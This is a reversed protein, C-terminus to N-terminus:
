KLIQKRSCSDLQDCLRKVDQVIGIGDVREQVIKATVIGIVQGVSNILPGGSNGPNITTDTIIFGDRLNTITGITISGDLTTDGAGPSGVAMVWHGVRPESGPQLTAFAPMSKDTILIALDNEVDYTYVYADYLNRDGLVKITVGSSECGEIVHQNTILETSYLDDRNSSPDDSLDIVWGSGSGYGCFITVASALSNDIFSQLLKPQTYLDGSIIETPASKKELTPTPEPNSSGSFLVPIIRLIALVGVICVFSIVAIKPNFRFNLKLFKTDKDNENVADEEWISKKEPETWYNENEDFLNRNM